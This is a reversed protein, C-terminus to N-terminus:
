ILPMDGSIMHSSIHTIYPHNIHKKKNSAIHCSIPEMVPKHNPVMKGYIPFLLGL